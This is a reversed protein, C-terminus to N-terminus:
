TKGLVLDVVWCGRVHIGPNRCHNLVDDSDCGTDQLADALIPMGTFDRTEYMQRAVGVATSTRWSPNFAVPRFPNGFVELLMDHALRPGRAVFGKGFKKRDRHSVLYHWASHLLSYQGTACAYIVPGTALQQIAAGKRNGTIALNNAQEVKSRWRALASETIKGDALQEARELAQYIVEDKFWQSFQRACAVDFLRLKRHHKKGRFQDLHRYLSGPTLWEQETM